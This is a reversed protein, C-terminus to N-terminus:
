QGSTVFNHAGSYYVIQLRYIASLMTSAESARSRKIYRTFAPLAVAALIGMILVVIMLEVLTFGRAAARRWHPLM